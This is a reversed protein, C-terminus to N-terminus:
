KNPIVTIVTQNLEIGRVQIAGFSANAAPSTRINQVDLEGVSVPLPLNYSGDQNIKLGPGGAGYVIDRASWDASLLGLMPFLAIAQAGPTAAPQQPNRWRAWLGRAPAAPLRVVSPPIPTSVARLETDSLAALAPAKAPEGAAAGLGIAGLLLGGCLRRLRKLRMTRCRRTSRSLSALRALGTFGTFGTFSTYHNM